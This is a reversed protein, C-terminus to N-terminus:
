GALWDGAELILGAWPVETYLLVLFFTVVYTARLVRRDSRAQALGMILLLWGFGAVPAFAYTLWCFALLLGHRAADVGRWTPLLMAAAVLAEVILGGWTFAQTVARLAPPEVVAPPDLLEAGDPLPELARRNEILDERTLGGFLQAADAFRDDALLTVRFFRGDVYDPSLVGKWLVAFAFACGVLLRSSRALDAPPEPARLALGAALCWYGLLYIHNDPLPWDAVLRLAILASAAMWTVPARLVAPSVLAGAGIALLGPRTFWPGMPRLLLVIATLRLPLDLGGGATQSKAWERLSM